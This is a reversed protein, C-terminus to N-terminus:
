HLNFSSQSFHSIRASLHSLVSYVCTSSPFKVELVDYSSTAITRLETLDYYDGVGLAMVTVGSVAKLADIGRTLVDPEELTHGDSILLVTVGDPNPHRQNRLTSAAL